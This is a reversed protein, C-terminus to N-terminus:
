ERFDVGEPLTYGADILDQLEQNWLENTSGPFKRELNKRAPSNASRTLRKLLYERQEEISLTQLHELMERAREKRQELARKSLEAYRQDLQEVNKETANKLADQAKPSLKEFFAGYASIAKLEEMAHQHQEIQLGYKEADLATLMRIELESVRQIDTLHETGERNLRYFLPVWEEILVHGHFLKKAINQLEARAAEPRTKLHKQFIKLHKAWIASSVLSEPTYLPPKPEPAKEGIGINWIGLLALCITLFFFATVFASRSFLNALLM